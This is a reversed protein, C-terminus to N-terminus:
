ESQAWNLAYELVPDIGAGFDEETTEVYIDPPVGAVQVWTATDARLVTEYPVTYANEGPLSLLFSSNVQAMTTDGILTTNPLEAAMCAFMEAAGNCTEGNLVAVPGEYWSFLAYIHRPEPDTLDTRGPGDRQVTFYGVRIEDNFRRAVQGIREVSGGGAPRQDIIVAPAGPNAELVEDLYGGYVSTDWEAILLYVVSDMVCYGWVGDEFWEFGAPEIYNVWLVDWDYNPEVDPVYPETWGGGSTLCISYDELQALMESMLEMFSAQLTVTDARASYESYVQDWDVSEQYVFGVYSQDYQEWILEFQAVFEDHDGLGVPDDVCSLGALLAAAVPM